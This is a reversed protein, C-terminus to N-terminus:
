YESVWKPNYSLYFIKDKEGGDYNIGATYYTSKVDIDSLTDFVNQIVMLYTGPGYYDKNIIREINIKMNDWLLDKGATNM